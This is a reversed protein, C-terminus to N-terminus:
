PSNLTIHCFLKSCTCPYNFNLNFEDKTMPVAATIATVAVTAAVVLLLPRVMRPPCEIHAAALPPLLQALPVRFQSHLGPYPLDLGEAEDITAVAGVITISVMRTIISAILSEYQAM